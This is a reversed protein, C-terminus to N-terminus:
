DIILIGVDEALMKLQRASFIAGKLNMSRLNFGQIEAGRFDTMSLKAENLKINQIRSDMFITKELNALSLDTEIFSCSSLDQKSLNIGRFDAYDFNCRMFTVGVLSATKSFQLGMLKCDRFTAGFFDCGTINANSLDCTDFVTANCEVKMFDFGVFSRNKFTKERFDTPKM